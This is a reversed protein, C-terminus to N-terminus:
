VYGGNKRLAFTIETWKFSEQVVLSELQVRHHNSEDQLAQSEEEYLYPKKMFTCFELPKKNILM